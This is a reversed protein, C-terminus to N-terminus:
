ASAGGGEARVRMLQARSRSRTNSISRSRQGWHPPGKVIMAAMSFALIGWFKARRPSSPGSFDGISSRPRAHNVGRLNLHVKGKSFFLAKFIRYRYRTMPSHPTAAGCM